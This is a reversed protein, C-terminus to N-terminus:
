HRLCWLAVHSRLREIFIESLQGGEVFCYTRWRLTRNFTGIIQASSVVVM